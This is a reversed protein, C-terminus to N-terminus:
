GVSSNGVPRKNPIGDSSIHTNALIMDSDTYIAVWFILWMNLSNDRWIGIPIFMDRSFNVEVIRKVKLEQEFDDDSLRFLGLKVLFNNPDRVILIHPLIRIYFCPTIFQGYM